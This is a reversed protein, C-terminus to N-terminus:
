GTPSTLSVRQLWQAYRKEHVVANVLIVTPVYYGARERCVGSMTFTGIVMSM